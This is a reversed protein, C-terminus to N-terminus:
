PEGPPRPAECRLWIPTQSWYSKLDLLLKEMEVLLKIAEVFFQQSFQSIDM